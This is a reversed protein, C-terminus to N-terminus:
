DGFNFNGASRPKFKGLPYEMNYDTDLVGIYSNNFVKESNIKLNSNNLNIWTDKYESINYTKSVGICAVETTWGAISPLLTGIFLVIIVASLIGILPNERVMSIIFILLVVIIFLTTANFTKMFEFSVGGERPQDCDYLYEVTYDSSGEIEPQPPAAEVALTRNLVEHDENFLLYTNNAYYGSKTVNIWYSTADVFVYGFSYYGSADTNTNGASTTVTAGSLPLGSENDTIYGDLWDWDTGGGGGTVVTVTWTLTSTTGNANTGNVSVFQVGTSSFMKTATSNSTGDGGVQTAGAWTWTTITQDAGASFLVANNVNLNFSLTSNGTINNLNSTISPEVTSSIRFSHDSWAGTYNVTIIKNTDSNTYSQFTDDLYFSYNHSANTMIGSFNLYGDTGTANFSFIDTVNNL